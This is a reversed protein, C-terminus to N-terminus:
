GQVELMELFATSNKKSLRKLIARSTRSCELKIGQTTLIKNQFYSVQYSSLKLETVKHLFSFQQEQKMQNVLSKWFKIYKLLINVLDFSKVKFFYFISLFIDTNLMFMVTGCVVQTSYAVSGNFFFTLLYKLLYLHSGHRLLQSNASTPTMQVPAYSSALISFSHSFV